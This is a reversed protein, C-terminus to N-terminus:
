TFQRHSRFQDKASYVCHLKPAVVTPSSSRRSRRTSYLKQCEHDVQLHSSLKRKLASFCQLRYTSSQVFSSNQGCVFVKNYLIERSEHCFHSPLFFRSSKKKNRASCPDLQAWAIHGRYYVAAFSWLWWRPSWQLTSFSIVAPLFM